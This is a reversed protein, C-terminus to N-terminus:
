EEDKLQLDVIGTLEGNNLMGINQLKKNVNRCIGEEVTLESKMAANDAEDLTEINDEPVEQMPELEQGPPAGNGASQQEEKKIPRCYIIRQIADSKADARYIRGLAQQMGIASWTPLILAVRQRVGTVDHLSVAVGGARINCIVVRLKNDQFSQIVEDREQASQEGHIYDIDHPTLLPTPDIASKPIQLLRRTLAKKSVNYSIFIAVDCNEQLYHATLKSILPMKLVEIKQWCRIIFGLGGPMGLARLRDMEERIIQHQREIEKAIEPDVGYAKAKVDNKKFIADATDRKIDEIRMRAGRLPFIRKHLIRMAIANEDEDPSAGSELGYLFQKYFKRGYPRFYGLIYCIVDFNEIKDTMTASLFLGLIKQSHKLYPKISVVLKSNVTPKPQNLGNKGKHAEDFIVLTNPPLTWEIKTVKQRIRGGPTLMPEGNTAYEDERTIQIYPCDERVEAQFDELATYYKGNKMTEYNVVGLPHVDFRECVRYWSPIVAKPSIILPRLGLEACIAATTYTKGTGTDSCDVASERGAFIYLLNQVHQVQYPLLKAIVEDKVATSIIREHIESRTLRVAM